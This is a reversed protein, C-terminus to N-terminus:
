EGRPEGKLVKQFAEDDLRGLQLKPVQKQKGSEWYKAFLFIDTIYKALEDNGKEKAIDRIVSLWILLTALRQQGDVV